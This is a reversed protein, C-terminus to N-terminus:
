DGGRPILLVTGVPLTERDSLKDKNAEWIIEWKRVDNYFRRALNALTDGYRVVYREFAPANERDKSQLKDPASIDPLVSSQTNIEARTTDAQSTAPKVFPNLSPGQRKERGVVPEEKFIIEREHRTIEFVLTDTQGPKLILDITERSVSHREPLYQSLLNLTYEGPQLNRFAFQGDKDSFRHEKEGSPLVLQMVVEPPQETGDATHLVVKGIIAASRIASFRVPVIQGGEVNVERSEQELTRDLGLQHADVHLNYSGPMLYPMTFYGEENTLTGARDTFIPIEGMGRGTESDILYGEIMGTRKSRHVRIDLPITYHLSIHHSAYPEFSYGTFSDYADFVSGGSNNLNVNLSLRHGFPFTHQLALRLYQSNSRKGRSETLAYTGSGSVSTSPALRLGFGLTGALSTSERTEGEPSAMRVPQEFSRYIGQSYLSLWRVVQISGNVRADLASVTSYQYATNTYRTSVEFNNLHKRVRMSAGVSRRLNNYYTLLGERAFDLESYYLNFGPTIRTSIHWGKSTGTYRRQYTYSGTLNWSEVPSLYMSALWNRSDQDFSAFADSYHEYITSLGYWPGTFSVDTAAAWGRHKISNSVGAETRIQFSKWSLASSATGVHATWYDDRWMWNLSTSFVDNWMREVNAGAAKQDYGFRRQSYFGSGSWRDTEFRGMGGTGMGSLGTLPSARVSIDGAEIRVNTTSLNVNYHNRSRDLFRVYEKPTNAHRINFGLSFRSGERLQGRGSALIQHYSAHSDNRDRYVTRLGLQARYRHYELRGEELIPFATVRTTALATISTDELVTARAALQIVNRSKLDRPVPVLVEIQESTHPLLDLKVRPPFVVWRANSLDIDVTSRVNSRNQVSFSVSLTDGAALFSPTRGAQIELQRRTLVNIFLEETASLGEGTVTYSITYRGADAGSPVIITLLRRSEGTVVEFSQEPFLLRWDSPLTVVADYRGPVAEIHVPITIAAGPEVFVSDPGPVFISLQSWAFSPYLGILFALICAHRYM